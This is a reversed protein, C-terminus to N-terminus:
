IAHIIVRDDEFDMDIESVSHLKGNLCIEVEIATLDGMNELEYKLDNAEM